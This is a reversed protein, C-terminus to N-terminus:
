INLSILKDFKIVKKFTFIKKNIFNNNLLLIYNITELHANM